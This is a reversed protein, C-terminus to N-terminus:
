RSPALGSEARAVSPKTSRASRATVRPLSRNGSPNRDLRRACRRRNCSHVTPEHGQGAAFPVCLGSPPLHLTRTSGSGYWSGGQPGSDLTRTGIGSSTEACNQAGGVLMRRPGHPMCPVATGSAATSSSPLGHRCSSSTRVDDSALSRHPTSGTGSGWETSTGACSSNSARTGDDSHACARVCTM